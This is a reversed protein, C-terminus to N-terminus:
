LRSKLALHEDRRLLQGGQLERGIVLGTPDADALEIGVHRHVPVRVVQAMAWQSATRDVGVGVARGLRRVLLLPLKAFENDVRQLDGGSATYATESHLLAHTQLSLTGLRVGVAPSPIHPELTQPLLRM